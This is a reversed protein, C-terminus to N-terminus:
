ASRLCSRWITPTTKCKNQYSKMIIDRHFPTPVKLVVSGSSFDLNVPEIKGIWLNYSVEPIQNKLYDCILNWAEIFTEM